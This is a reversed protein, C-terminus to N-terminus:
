FPPRPGLVVFGPPRFPISWAQVLGTWPNYAASWPTGPRTPLGSDSTGCPGGGTNAGQSGCSASGRASGKGRKKFKGKSRQSSTGSGGSSGDASRYNSAGGDSSNSAYLTTGAEMKADHQM